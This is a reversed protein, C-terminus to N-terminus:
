VNINYNLPRTFSKDRAESHKQLIHSKKKTETTYKIYINWLIDKGKINRRTDACM